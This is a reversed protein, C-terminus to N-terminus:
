TFVVTLCEHTVIFFMLLTESIEGVLFSLNFIETSRIVSPPLFSTSFERLYMRRKVLSVRRM